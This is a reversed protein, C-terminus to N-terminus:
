GRTSLPYQPQPQPYQPPSPMVPAPAPQMMVPAAMLTPGSDVPFKWRMGLMIDNSSLNSFKYSDASCGGICDITDTVSGYNLYRYALEVSFSRTVAYDLGAYFAYAPSWNTSNRGFGAGTTGIGMDVLDAMQNYATGVGVGVFPTLCNWTYLDVYANALFVWSKLYGQYADGNGTVPNFVGRANIQTRDRYTATVDFRLWNNLEYGIGVDYFTTDAESHQDFAFGNGVDPPSPLYTISFKNTMGIGVDGRLYWASSCCPEAVVPQYVPQPQPMDAAFATTSLMAAAAAGILFKVSFM